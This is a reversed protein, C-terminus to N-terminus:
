STCVQLGYESPPAYKCGKNALVHMSAVWVRLGYESTHAYMCGMSALLHM